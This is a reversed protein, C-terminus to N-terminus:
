KVRKTYFLKRARVTKDQFGYHWEGLNTIKITSQSAQKWNVYIIGAYIIINYMGSCSNWETSFLFLFSLYFVHIFNNKSLISLKHIFLKEIRPISDKNVRFFLSM